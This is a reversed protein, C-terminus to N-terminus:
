IKPSLGQRARWQEELRTASEELLVTTDWLYRLRAREEPTLWEPSLPDSLWTFQTFLDRMRLVLVNLNLAYRGLGPLAPRDPSKATGTNSQPTQESM